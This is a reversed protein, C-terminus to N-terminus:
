KLRGNKDRNPAKYKPFLACLRVVRRQKNSETRVRQKAYKGTRANKASRILKHRKGGKAGKKPKTPTDMMVSM